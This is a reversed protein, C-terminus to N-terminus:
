LSFQSGNEPVQYKRKSSPNLPAEMLGGFM